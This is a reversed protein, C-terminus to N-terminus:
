ENGLLAAHQLAQSIREASPVDLRCVRGSQQPPGMVDEGNVLVTPSPYDGEEERIPVKLGLRDVCQHVLEITARAHPCGDHYLVDVTM